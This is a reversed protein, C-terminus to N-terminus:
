MFGSFDKAGTIKKTFFYWLALVFATTSFWSAIHVIEAAGPGFERATWLVALVRFYNLILLLAAGSLFIVIKKQMEPKRLSFIIAFLISSSVLGTCSPNIDFIGEKAFVLSGASTLGLMGAQTSAIFEQLLPFGFYNVAAELAFFAAFFKALFLAEGRTVLGLIKAENKGLPQEQILGKAPTRADNKKTKANSKRRKPGTM